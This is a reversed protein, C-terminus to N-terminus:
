TQDEKSSRKDNIIKNYLKLTEPSTIKLSELIMVDEKPHCNFDTNKVKWYWSEIFKNQKKFNYKILTRLIAQRTHSNNDIPKSFNKMFIKLAKEKDIQILLEAIFNKIPWSIFEKNWYYKCVEFSKNKDHFNLLREYQTALLFATVVKYEFFAETKLNNEYDNKAEPSLMEFLEEDSLNDAIYKLANIAKLDKSNSYLRGTDLRESVHSYPYNVTIESEQKIYKVLDETTNYAIYILEDNNKNPYYYNGSLILIEILKKPEKILTDYDNYSLTDIYRWHAIHNKNSSNIFSQYNEQNTFDKSYLISYYKLALEKSYIDEWEYSKTKSNFKPLSIIKVDENNRSDMWSKLGESHVDIYMLYIAALKSIEKNELLLKEAYDKYINEEEFDHWYKGINNSFFCEPLSAINIPENQNKNQIITFISDFYKQPPMDRFSVYNPNLKKWLGKMIYYPVGEFHVPKYQGFAFATSVKLTYDSLAISDYAKYNERVFGDSHYLPSLKLNDIVTDNLSEHLIDVAQYYTINQASIKVFGILISITLIIKYKKLYASSFM